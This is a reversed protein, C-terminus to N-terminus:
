IRSAKNSTSVSDLYNQVKYSEINCKRKSLYKGVYPIRTFADYIDPLFSRFIIFLGCLQVCTGIFTLQLTILVLGLFYLMSGRRKGSDVYETGKKQFFWLSGGIGIFFYMGALFFMQMSSQICQCHPHAGSQLHTHSRTRLYNNSCCQAHRNRSSRMLVKATRWAWFM